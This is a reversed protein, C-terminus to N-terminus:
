RTEGAEFDRDVKACNQDFSVLQWAGYEKRFWLDERCGASEFRGEVALRVGAGLCRPDLGM